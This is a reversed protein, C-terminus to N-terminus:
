ASLRWCDERIIARVVSDSIGVARALGIADLDDDDSYRQVATRRRQILGDSPPRQSEPRAAAAHAEQQVRYRRAEVRWHHVSAALRRGLDALVM